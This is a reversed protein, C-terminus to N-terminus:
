FAQESSSPRGLRPPGVAAAGGTKLDMPHLEGQVASVPCRFWGRGHGAVKAEKLYVWEPAAPMETAQEYEEGTIPIGEVVVGGVILTVKPVPM